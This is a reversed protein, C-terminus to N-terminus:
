TAGREITEARALAPEVRLTLGEVGVVRVNVGAPIPTGITAASWRESAIQVVGKPALDTTVVGEAGILPVHGTRLPLRRARIARDVVITFFGTTALAVPVITGWSVHANPVSPNFLFLAGLVLTTLGGVTPLGLGPHKLEILFFGASALLLVIGILSVPLMGFSVFAAIFSVIGFVLAAPHHLFGAIVLGLGLYFFIFALDPSLLGHLISAGLGLSRTQLSAGTTHITVLQRRGNYAQRGDAARLLAATTPEVLEVVHLRLADDASASVADRVAREAWSPNRRHTRALARILAVADNTVKEQEIVGSVGVPHAAGIATGPAMAALTCSQMIFTGASAGRAGPPSVYCIV